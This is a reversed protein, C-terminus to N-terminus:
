ARGWTSLVQRVRSPDALRHRAATRGSGVKVSVGGRRNALAFAPEDTLDDGFVVPKRGRFPPETLLAAVAQGKGVGDPRLEILQKSPHLHFGPADEAIGSMAHGAKEALSPDARYHLGVAVPKVEVLFGPATRAVDTVREIARDLVTRDIDLREVRGRRWLREAGHSGIMPVVLGPLMGVLDAISRGSVLALAGGARRHLRNLLAVLGVPVVVADPQRALAVLCGDFDLFYAARAPHPPM